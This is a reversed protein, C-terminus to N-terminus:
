AGAAGHGVFPWALDLRLARRRTHCPLPEANPLHICRVRETRLPGGCAVLALLAADKASLAIALGGVRLRPTGLLCL